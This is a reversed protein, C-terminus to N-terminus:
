RSFGLPPRFLRRQLDLADLGRAAHQGERLGPPLLRCLRYVARFILKILRLGVVLLLQIFDECLDVVQFSFYGVEVLLNAGGCM